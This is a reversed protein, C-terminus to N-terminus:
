RLNILLSNDIIIAMEGRTIQQNRDLNLNKDLGLETSKALVNEPWKGVLTDEYGLSRIIVTLAESYTINNDPNFRNGSGLVLKHKVASNIYKYSWSKMKVDTFKLPITDLDTDQDYGLMKVVLTVFESRKINNQLRLSGDEYGQMIKLNVLNKAASDEITSDAYSVSQVTIILCFSIMIIRKLFTNIFM